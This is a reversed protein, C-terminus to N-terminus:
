SRREGGGGRAGGSNYVQQYFVLVESLLVFANITLQALSLYPRVAGDLPSCHLQLNTMKNRNSTLPTFYKVVHHQDDRWRLLHGTLLMSIVTLYVQM